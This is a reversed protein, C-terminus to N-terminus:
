ERGGPKKLLEAVEAWFGAWAQREAPPLKALAAQDRVGALDTDKQWDRMAKQVATRDAPNGTELQRARLVLDARLWDLAQKRLRTREKDDLKAVDEGKGAAALAASRAADYRHRSGRAEALTPAAAFAEAYLRAAMAPRRKYGRCLGALALREAADRPSSGGELIAALRRDLGLL